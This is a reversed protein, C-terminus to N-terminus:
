PKVSAMRAIRDDLMERWIDPDEIVFGSLSLYFVIHGQRVLLAHGLKEGEYYLDSFRSDDGVSYFNERKEMKIGNLPMVVRSSGMLLLYTQMAEKNNREISLQVFLYPEDELPSDYDYNLEISQDFYKLKEWIEYEASPEFADFYPVLDHARIMLSMDSETVPLPRHFNIFFLIAGGVLAVVFLGLVLGLLIWTKKVSGQIRNEWRM